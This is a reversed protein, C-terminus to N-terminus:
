KGQAVKEKKPAHKDLATIFNEFEPTGVIQCLKM